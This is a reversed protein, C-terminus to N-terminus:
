EYVSELCELVGKCAILYWMVAYCLLHKFYSNSFVRFNFM